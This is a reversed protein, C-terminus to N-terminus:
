QGTSSSSNGVSGEIHGSADASATVTVRTSNADLGEAQEVTFGQSGTPDWCCLIGEPTTAHYDPDDVMQEFQDDSLGEGDPVDHAEFCARVLQAHSLGQPNERMGLYIPEINGTTGTECAIFDNSSGDGQVVYGGDSNNTVIRGKDAMCQALLDRAEAYEADTIVYDSLAQKEFDSSNPDALVQDIMNKWMPAITVSPAPQSDTCGAIGAVALACAVVAVIKRFHVM